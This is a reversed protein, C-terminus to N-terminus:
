KKGEPQECLIEALESLASEPPIQLVDDGTWTDVGEGQANHKTFSMIQLAHAKSASCDIEIYTKTSLVKKGNGLTEPKSRNTLLWFGIRDAKEITKDHVWAEELEDKYFLDWDGIPRELEVKTCKDIDSADEQYYIEGSKHTCKYFFETDAYTTLPFSILLLTICKNILKM